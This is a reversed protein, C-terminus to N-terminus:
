VLREYHLLGNGVLKYTIFTLMILIRILLFYEYGMTSLTINTGAIYLLLFIYIERKTLQGMSFDAYFIMYIIFLLSNACIIYIYDRSNGIYESNIFVLINDMFFHIFGTAIIITLLIIKVNRWIIRNRDSRSGKVLIKIKTEWISSPLIQLVSSLFCGFSFYALDNTTVSDINMRDILLILVTLVQVLFVGSNASLAKGIQEFDLHLGQVKSMRITIICAVINFVVILLLFHFETLVLIFMPLFSIIANVVLTINVYRSLNSVRFSIRWNQFYVLGISSIIFLREVINYNAYFSFILSMVLGIIITLTNVHKLLMNRDKNNAAFDLGYRTGVHSYDLLGVINKLLGYRGYFATSSYKVLILNGILGIVTTLYSYLVHKTALSKFKFM